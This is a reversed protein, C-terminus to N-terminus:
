SRIGFVHQRVEQGNPEPPSRNNTISRSVGFAHRSAAAGTWSRLVQRRSGSVSPWHRLPTVALVRGTNGARGAPPSLVCRGSDGAPACNMELVPRHGLVNDPALAHFGGLPSVTQGVNQLARLHRM